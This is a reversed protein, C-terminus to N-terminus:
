ADNKVQCCGCDVDLVKEMADTQVVVWMNMHALLHPWFILM